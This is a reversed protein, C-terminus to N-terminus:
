RPVFSGLYIVWFLYTSSFLFQIDDVRAKMAHPSAFTRHEVPEGRISMYSSTMDSSNSELALIFYIVGRGSFFVM